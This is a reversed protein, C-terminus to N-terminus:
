VAEVLLLSRTLGAAASSATVTIDIKSDVLLRWDPDATRCTEPEPSLLLATFAARDPGSTCDTMGSEHTDITVV